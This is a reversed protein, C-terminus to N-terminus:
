NKQLRSFEAGEHEGPLKRGLAEPSGLRNEPGEPGGPLRGQGEGPPGGRSLPRQDADLGVM